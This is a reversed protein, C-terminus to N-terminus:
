FYFFTITTPRDLDAPTFGVQADTVFELGAFTAASVNGGAALNRDKESLSM